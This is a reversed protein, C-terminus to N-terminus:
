CIEVTFPSRSAAQIIALLYLCGNYISLGKPMLNKTPFITLPLLLLLFSFNPRSISHSGMWLSQLMHPHMFPLRDSHIERLGIGSYYSPFVAELAKEKMDYNLQSQWKTFCIFFTGQKPKRFNWNQINKPCVREFSSLIAQYRLNKLLIM